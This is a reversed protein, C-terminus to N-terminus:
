ACLVDPQASIEASGGERVALLAEIGKISWICSGNEHDAQELRM